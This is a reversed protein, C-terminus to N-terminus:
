QISWGIDSANSVIVDVSSGDGPARRERKIKCVSNRINEIAQLNVVYSTFHPFEKDTITIYRLRAIIATYKM